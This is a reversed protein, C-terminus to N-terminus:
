TSIFLPILVVDERFVVNRVAIGYRKQLKCFVHLLERLMKMVFRAFHTNLEADPGRFAKVLILRGLAKAVEAAKMIVHVFMAEVTLM